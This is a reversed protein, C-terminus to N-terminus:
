NLDAIAATPAHHVPPEDISATAVTETAASLHVALGLAVGLAMILDVAHKWRPRMM